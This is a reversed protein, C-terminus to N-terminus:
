NERNWHWGYVRIPQLPVNHQNAEARYTRRGAEINKVRKWRLGTFENQNLTLLVSYAALERGWHVGAWETPNDARNIRWVTYVRLETRDWDVDFPELFRGTCDGIRFVLEPVVGGPVTAFGLQPVVLSEPIVTNSPVPTPDPSAVESESSSDPDPESLPEALPRRRCGLSGGMVQATFSCWCWTLCSCMYIMTFIWIISVLILESMM